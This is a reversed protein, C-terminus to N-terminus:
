GRSDACRRWLQKYRDIVVPVDYNAEVFRRGSEGMARARGPDQMLGEIARALGEADGPKVLVGRTEGVMEPIAGVDTAIVPVSCAMAEMVVTPFAETHSPLVLVAARSLERMADGHDLEGAIVVGDACIERLRAKYEDKYPGILKLRWEPYGGHVTKWAALLEEVGKAPVVWGLFVVSREKGDQGERADEGFEAVRLPNPIKELKSSDAGCEALSRRTPEDLCVARSCLAVNRLLMRKEPADSEAIDPFRGFHLHYVSPIDRREAEKLLLYDRITALSGSTAIHVCDIREGGEAIRRFARRSGVITRAGDCARQALSRGETVRKRPATDVVHINVDPDALLAESVTAQWNSIGGYPPPVPAFMLVNRADNSSRVAVEEEM